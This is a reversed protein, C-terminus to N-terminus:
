RGGRLRDIVTGLCEQSASEDRDHIEALEDAVDSTVSRLRGLEAVASDRVRETSRLRMELREIQAAYSLSRAHRRDSERQVRVVDDIKDAITAYANALKLDGALTAARAHERAKGAENPVVLVVTNDATFTVAASM